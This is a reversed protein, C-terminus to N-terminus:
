GADNHLVDVLAPTIKGGLLRIPGKIATRLQRRTLRPVLYQSRNLAEPLGYFVDCDGRFDSRMTMVVYVPLDRQSTLALRLSVFDAAEDHQAGHTSQGGFRFIEEFQDVLLLLNADTDKLLPALRDLVAQNGDEEIAERLVDVNEDQPGPNEELVKLLAKALNNLPAHGPKMTAVLWDPRDALLFGGRLKPILGARVLSSKGSGSSGVVAVFKNYHLCQLLAVTQEERGFFLDSDDSEFPRLGVFPNDPPNSESNDPQPKM